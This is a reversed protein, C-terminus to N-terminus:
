RMASNPGSVAQGVAAGDAESLLAGTDTVTSGEVVDDNESCGDELAQFGDMVDEMDPLRLIAELEVADDPSKEEPEIECDIVDCGLEDDSDLTRVKLEVGKGLAVAFRSAGAKSSGPSLLVWFIPSPTPTGKASSAKTASSNAHQMKYRRRFLFCTFPLSGGEDGPKM